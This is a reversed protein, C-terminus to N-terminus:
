CFRGMTGKQDSLIEIIGPYHQLFSFESVQYSILRTQNAGLSGSAQRKLFLLSMKAKDDAEKLEEVKEVFKQNLQHDVEKMAEIQELAEALQGKVAELEMNTESVLRQQRSSHERVAKLELTVLEFQEM